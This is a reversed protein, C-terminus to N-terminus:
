GIGRLACQMSPWSSFDMPHHGCCATVQSDSFAIDFRFITTTEVEPAGRLGRQQGAPIGRLPIRSRRCYRGLEEDEEAHCVDRGLRVGCIRRGSPDCPDCSISSLRLRSQLRARKTIRILIRPPRYNFQAQRVFRLQSPKTKPNQTLRLKSKYFNWGACPIERLLLKGLRV